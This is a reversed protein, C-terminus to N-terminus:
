APVRREARRLLGEAVLAVVEGRTVPDPVVYPHAEDFLICANADYRDVLRGADSEAVLAAVGEGTM